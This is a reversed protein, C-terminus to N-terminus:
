QCYVRRLLFVAAIYVAKHFTQTRRRDHLCSLKSSHSAAAKRHKVVKGEGPGHTLNKKLFTLAM